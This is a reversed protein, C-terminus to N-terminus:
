HQSCPVAAGSPAPSHAAGLYVWEGHLAYTQGVTPWDPVSFEPRVMILETGAPLTLSATTDTTTQTGLSMYGAAHQVLDVTYSVAAPNRAWVVKATTGAIQCSRAGVGAFPATTPPPWLSSSVLSNQQPHYLPLQVSVLGTTDVAHGSVIAVVRFQVDRGWPASVGPFPPIGSVTASTPAPHLPIAPLLVAAYPAGGSTVAQRLVQYSTAGPYAPWSLTVSVLPTPGSTPLQPAGSAQLGIRFRQGTPTGAPLETVAKNISPAQVPVRPTVTGQADARAADSGICLIGCALAAVMARTSRDHASRM